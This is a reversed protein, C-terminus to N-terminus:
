LTAAGLLKRQDLARDFSRTIGADGLEGDTERKRESGGLLSDGLLTVEDGRLDRGEHAIPHERAGVEAVKEVIRVHPMEIWNGLENPPAAGTCEGDFRRGGRLEVLRQLGLRKRRNRLEEVRYAGHAEGSRLGRRGLRREQTGRARVAEGGQAHRL